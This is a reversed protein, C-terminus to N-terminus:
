SKWGKTLQHDHYAAYESYVDLLSPRRAVLFFRTFPFLTTGDPAPPYALAVRRRFEEQFATAAETGEGGFAALLPRMGTSRVYDYVPDASPGRLRQVYTTSWMDLDQCLPGLLAAGYEQPSHRNTPPTCQEAPLGMSAAVERLILHSPQERTDPIQMALVGGPRVRALTQSLLEPLPQDMGIWHMAANSFILDYLPGTKAAEASFHELIGEDHFSVLQRSALVEDARAAELMESSSDVLLLKAHPYKELLLKAPGGTGCGADVITPQSGSLKGIRSILDVAPRLREAAFATYRTPSWTSSLPM